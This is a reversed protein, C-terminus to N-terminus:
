RMFPNNKKEYGIKSYEKSGYDHGPYVEINEDMMSLKVLSTRMDEENSEPLDTRGIAEVFLTDGTILKNEVLYCVSGKTHGPTHIVKIKLKGLEIIDNDKIRRVKFEHDYDKLTEEEHVYIEADTKKVLKRLDLTHDFHGHTLLIKTIKLSEKECKDIIKKHEWGPDIIAAEGSDGIIYSYNAMMGLKLQKFIM